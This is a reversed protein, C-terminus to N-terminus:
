PNGSPTGMNMSSIGNPMHMGGPMPMPMGGPMPMQMPMGGSMPMQMGGSMSMPMGGSMPMNMGGLNYVPVPVYTFAMAPQEAGTPSRVGSPSAMSFLPNGQMPTPMMMPPPSMMGSMM